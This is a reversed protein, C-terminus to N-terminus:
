SSDIPCRHHPKMAPEIDIIHGRPPTPRADWHEMLGKTIWSLFERFVPHYIGNIHQM